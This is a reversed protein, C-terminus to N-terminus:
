LLMERLEGCTRETDSRNFLHTAMGQRAAAAINAARDDIFMTQSAELAYRELLMRYIEPEPKTAHVECSVIDGDFAAYVPQRRLFAIFERAMNSLVYLGYGAAKLDWILRETPRITEQMDISQLVLARCYEESCGNRAALIRVVEDMTYTGRDYENWFEPMPETRIFSFFETFEPTCKKMDRAFVVGGLDFVINKMRCFYDFYVSKGVAGGRKEGRM